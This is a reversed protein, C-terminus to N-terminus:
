ALSLSSTRTREVGGAVATRPEGSAAGGAGGGGAAVGGAGGAADGTVAGRRAGHGARPWHLRRPHGTGAGRPPAEGPTPRNENWHPINAYLNLNNHTLPM